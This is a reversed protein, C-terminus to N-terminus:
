KGSSTQPAPQVRRVSLTHAHMDVYYFAILGTQNPAAPLYVDGTAMGGPALDGPNLMQSAVQAARKGSKDLSRSAGFLAGLGGIIAVPPAVFSAAVMGATTIGVQKALQTSLSAPPKALEAVTLAPNLTQGNSLQVRVAQVSVVDKGVNSITIHLQLWGAKNPNYGPEGRTRVSDVVIRISRDQAPAYAYTETPAVAEKEKAAVPIPACALAVLAVAVTRKLIHM